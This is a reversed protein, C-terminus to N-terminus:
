PCWLDELGTLNVIKGFEQVLDDSPRTIRIAQHTEGTLAIAGEMAAKSPASLICYHEQSALLDEIMDSLEDVTGEIRSEIQHERPRANFVADITDALTEDTLTRTTRSWTTTM